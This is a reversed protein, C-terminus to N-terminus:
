GISRVVGLRRFFDAEVESCALLVPRRSVIQALWDQEDCRLAVIALAVLQEGADLHRGVAHVDDWSASRLWRRLALAAARESDDSV